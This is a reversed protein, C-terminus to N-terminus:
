MKFLVNEDEEFTKVEVAELKVVPEFHVDPSAEVEEQQNYIQSFQILEESMKSNEELHPMGKGERQGEDGVFVFGLGKKDDM